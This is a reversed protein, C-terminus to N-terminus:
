DGLEIQLIEGPLMVHDVKWEGLCQPGAFMLVQYAGIREVQYTFSDGFPLMAEAFFDAVHRTHAAEELFLKDRLVIIDTTPM